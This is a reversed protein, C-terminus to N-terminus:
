IIYIIYYYIFLNIVIEWDTMEYHDKLRKFTDFYDCVMFQPKWTNSMLKLQSRGTKRIKISDIDADESFPSKFIKSKKEKMLKKIKPLNRSNSNSKINKSINEKNKENTKTRSEFTKSREEYIKYATQLKENFDKKFKMLEELRSENSLKM